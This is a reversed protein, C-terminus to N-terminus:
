GVLFDRLTSLQCFMQAMLVCPLLEVGWSATGRLNEKQTSLSTIRIADARPGLDGHEMSRHSSEWWVHGQVSLLLPSLIRSSLIRTMYPGFALGTIMNLEYVM